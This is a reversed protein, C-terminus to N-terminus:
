ITRPRAHAPAPDRAALYLGTVALLLVIGTVVLWSGLWSGSASVSSRVGRAYAQYYTFDRPNAASVPRKLNDEFDKWRDSVAPDTVHVNRSNDAMTATIFDNDDTSIFEDGGSVLINNRVKINTTDLGDVTSHLTIVTGDVGGNLINNEIIGGTISGLEINQGGYSECVNGRYVYNGVDSTPRHENQMILCQGSVRLCYNDEITVNSSKISADHSNQYNQFCDNHPEGVGKNVNLDHIYNNRIVHGTGWGRMADVDDIDTDQWLDYINNREVLDNHGGWIFIGFNHVQSITNGAITISDGCGSYGGGCSIAYHIGRGKVLNNIIKHGTGAYSIAQSPNDLPGGVVTFGDLVANSGSLTAAKIKVVGTARVTIPKSITLTTGSYDGPKVCIVAGPSAGDIVSQPNSKVTVTCDDTRPDGNGDTGYTMPEGRPTTGLAIYDAGSARAGSTKEGSVTGGNAEGTVTLTSALVGVTLWAGILVVALVCLATVIDRRQEGPASLLAARIKRVKGLV